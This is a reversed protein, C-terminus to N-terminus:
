FVVQSYTQPKHMGIPVFARPTVFYNPGGPVSRLTSAAGYPYGWLFRKTGTVYPWPRVAGATGGPIGSPGPVQWRALQNGAAPNQPVGAGVFAFPAAPASALPNSHIGWM